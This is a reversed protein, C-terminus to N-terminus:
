RPLCGLVRAMLANATRAGVLDGHGFGGRNGLWVVVVHRAEIAVCWADRRGSSTGSKWAVAGAREGPVLPLRRMADLVYAVSAATLGAREPADVFRQYAQALQQPSASGSGLAASLDAPAASPPLGLGQLWGGFAAPGVLQLSRVATLNNSSALAQAPDLWGAHGPQFNSPRWGELDLPSDELRVRDALGGHQRLLAYLFPKLTSGLSRACQSLDLLPRPQRDGLVALFQGRPRGLVVVAVGDGPLDAQAVVARLRQDLEVDLGTALHRDRSAPDAAALAADVGEQVLWPWGHAQMGLPRASAAALEAASLLGGEHFRQLLRNRHVLLRAAHRHPARASPAPVMALLAALDVLDLEALPRGFWMSAAAPLGRLTGGMPVQQLWADAIAAKGHSRELQRARLMERLKNAYSRPRPEVQRVVQMTLTSAGSVIRGARLNHLLARVIAVGDVGSHHDFRADEALRVALAHVAPLEAFSGPLVREGAPTPVVRLLTGDAAMVQLSRPLAAFAASPYPWVLELAREGLMAALWM